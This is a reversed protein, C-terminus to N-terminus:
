FITVPKDVLTKVGEALSKEKTKLDKIKTSFSDNDKFNIGEQVIQLQVAVLKTWKEYNGKLLM